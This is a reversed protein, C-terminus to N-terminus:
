AVSRRPMRRRCQSRLTSPMRRAADDASAVTRNLRQAHDRSRSTAARPLREVFGFCLARPITTTVFLLGALRGSARARAYDEIFAARMGAGFRERFGLPYVGLLWDFLKM